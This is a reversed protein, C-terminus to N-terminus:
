DIPGLQTYILRDVGLDEARQRATARDGTSYASIEFPRPASSTANPTAARAAAIFEAARDHELRVNIGDAHRGALESLAVTNVGVIVPVAGAIRVAVIQAVVARHRADRDAFLPIGRSEHEVAWKSGPATGAGLGLRLRGNSIRQVSQAAAALVAPHRNAVNAVLTGLNITTTIAALAGLLSVCELVPRDGGLMAGDFHDFVWTADYGESEARLVAKRLAPWDNTASSFQVDILM